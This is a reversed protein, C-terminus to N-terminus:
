EGPPPFFNKNRKCPELEAEETFAKKVGEEVDRVRTGLNGLQECVSPTDSAKDCPM